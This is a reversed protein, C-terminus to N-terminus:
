RRVYLPQLAQQPMARPCREQSLTVGNRTIASFPTGDAGTQMRVEVPVEYDLSTCFSVLGQGGNIRIQRLWPPCWNGSWIPLVIRNYMLDIEEATFTGPVNTPAIGLIDAANRALVIPGIEGQFALSGTGKNGLVVATSGTFNGVPATAQTVTVQKPITENNGSWVVWAATPGTNNCSNAIAIFKWENVALGVGTTTWQGDTANDTRLRLESTTTDIEPGFINGASWLGRTATLTTPKWWGAVLCSTATAGISTPLTIALDDTTAAGCTYSM